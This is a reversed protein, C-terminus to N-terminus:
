MSDAPDQGIVVLVSSAGDVIVPQDAGPMLELSFTEEEEVIMDDTITINLCEFSGEGSGSTFDIQQSVLPEFDVGTM